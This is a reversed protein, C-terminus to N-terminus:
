LMRGRSKSPLIIKGNIWQDPIEPLKCAVNDLRHTITDALIPRDTPTQSSLPSIRYCPSSLDSLDPLCEPVPRSPRRSTGRISNIQKSGTKIKMISVNLLPVAPPPSHAIISRSEGRIDERCKVELCSLFAIDHVHKRQLRVVTIM